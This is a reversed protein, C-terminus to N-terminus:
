DPHRSRIQLMPNILSQYAACGCYEWLVSHKASFTAISLHYGIIFSSHGDCSENEKCNLRATLRDRRAKLSEVGTLPAAL